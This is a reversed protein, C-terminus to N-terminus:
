AKKCPQWVEKVFSDNIIRSQLYGPTDCLIKYPCAQCEWEPGRPWFNMEEYKMRARHLALIDKKWEEIEWDMRETFFRNIECSKVQFTFLQICARPRKGLAQEAAWIYGTIQNNPRPFFIRKYSTKNEVILLDGLFEGVLDIEGEYIIDGELPFQFYVGQSKMKFNPFNLARELLTKANDLTRGGLNVEPALRSYFKKLVNEAEEKQGKYMFTLAEHFAQGFAMKFDQEKPALGKIIRWFYRKPCRRFISLSTNDYRYM